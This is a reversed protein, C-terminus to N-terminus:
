SFYCRCTFFFLFDIADGSISMPAIAYLENYCISAFLCGGYYTSLIFANNYVM